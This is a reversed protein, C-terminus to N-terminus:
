PVRQLTVGLNVFGSGNLTGSISNDGVTGNLDVPQFDPISMTLSINPPDYSGSVSIGLVDDPVTLTGNGTISGGADDLTLELLGSGSGTNITGSWQGEAEPHEPEAGGDGGCGLALVVMATLVIRRMM